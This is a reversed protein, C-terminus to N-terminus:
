KRQEGVPRFKYTILKKGTDDEYLHDIVLEVEMGVELNDTDCDTFLTEIRVEDPLEVFGLAYPVPGKYYPRPQQMVISYSYIKGNRSLLIEQLSEHQCNPCIDRNPFSVEKCAPCKGGILRPKGDTSASTTFLGPRVPIGEPIQEEKASNAM